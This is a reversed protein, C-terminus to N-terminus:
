TQPKVTAGEISGDRGWCERCVWTKDDAMLYLKEAIVGCLECKTSKPRDPLIARSQHSDLPVGKLTSIKNRLRSKLEALRAPDVSGRNDKMQFAENEKSPLYPVASRSYSRGTPRESAAPPTKQSSTPASVKKNDLHEQLAKKLWLMRKCTPCQGNKTYVASEYGCSCKFVVGVSEAREMNSLTTENIVEDYTNAKSLQWNIDTFVRRYKDSSHPNVKINGNEVLWLITRYLPKGQIGLRDRITELRVNAVGNNMSALNALYALVNVRHTGVQEIAFDPDIKWYRQQEKAEEM